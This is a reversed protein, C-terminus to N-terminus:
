KVSGARRFAAGRGAMMRVAGRAGAERAGMAWFQREMSVDVAGM